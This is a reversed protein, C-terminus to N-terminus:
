RSLDTLHAQRRIQAILNKISKILPNKWRRLQDESKGITRDAALTWYLTLARSITIEPEAAGGLYAGAERFDPGKPSVKVAEIRELLEGRPLKAVATANLYRLGRVAALNRAAQFRAEADSTDGALKAEWGEVMLEWATTAKLAAVAQSVTHLSVWVFKRPEVAVYRRPVLKYLYLQTGRLTIKM